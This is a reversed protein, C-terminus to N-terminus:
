FPCEATQENGRIGRNGEERSQSQAAPVPEQWRKKARSLTMALQRLQTADLWEWMRTGFKDASIHRVYADEAAHQIFWKTRQISDLKGETDLWHEMSTLCLPEILLGDMRQEGGKGNGWLCLLRSFQANTMEQHGIDRGFAYVHCGHRLDNATVARHQQVALDSAIRWVAVHHESADRLAEGKMRGKVWVWDNAHCVASWRRWYLTNQLETM